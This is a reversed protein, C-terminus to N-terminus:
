EEEALIANAIRAAAQMVEGTDQVIHPPACGSFHMLAQAHVLEWPGRSVTRVRGCFPCLFTGTDSKRIDM